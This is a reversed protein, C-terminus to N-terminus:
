LTDQVSTLCISTTPCLAFIQGSPNISKVLLQQPSDAPFSISLVPLVLYFIHAVIHSVTGKSLQEM